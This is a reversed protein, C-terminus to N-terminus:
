SIFNIVVLRLKGPNFPEVMERSEVVSPVVFEELQRM